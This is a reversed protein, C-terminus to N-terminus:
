RPRVELARAAAVIRKFDADERLPDLDHDDDVWELGAGARLASSLLHLAQVRDEVNQKSTLAFIGAVQYLTLPSPDLELAKRADGLAPDRKGQRALLIGRGGCALVSDPYLRVAEDLVELAGADKHFKDSLLAAKNQLGEFSRPNLALAKDFDELAGKPDDDRKALGRAIWDYEDNPVSQLCRALNKKSADADGSKACVEALRLYIRCNESGVELSRNLDTRAEAYQALEERAVARNLYADAINADLHVVEDFDECAQLAHHLRLHALGRNFWAWPFNPRLSICANFCAIADGHRGLEYYSNGLV